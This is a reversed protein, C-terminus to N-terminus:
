CGFLSIILKEERERESNNRRPFTVCVYQATEPRLFITLYCVCRSRRGLTLAGPDRKM